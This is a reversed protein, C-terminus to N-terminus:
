ALKGLYSMKQAQMRTRIMELPSVITAAWIRAIGGSALPVWLPQQSLGQGPRVWDRLRSRVQEYTVFYIVTAPLALVLTPGLGSWM